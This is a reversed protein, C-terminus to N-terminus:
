RRGMMNVSAIFTTKIKPFSALATRQLCWGRGQPNRMRVLCLPRHPIELHRLWWFAGGGRSAAPSSETESNISNKARTVSWRFMWVCSYAIRTQCRQAHKGQRQPANTQGTATRWKQAHWTWWVHWSPTEWGGWPRKGTRAGPCPAPGLRQQGLGRM